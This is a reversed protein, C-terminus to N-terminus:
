KKKKNALEAHKANAEAQLKAETELFVDIRTRAVSVSTYNGQLPAPPKSGNELQIVWLSPHRDRTIYFSRHEYGVIELKEPDPIKYLHYQDRKGRTFRNMGDRFDVM